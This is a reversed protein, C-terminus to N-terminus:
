ESGLSGAITVSRRKSVRFVGHSWARRTALAAAAFAFARQAKEDVGRLREALAAPLSVAPKARQEGYGQRVLEIAFMPNGGSAHELAGPVDARHLRDRAGAGDAMQPQRRRQRARKRDRAM